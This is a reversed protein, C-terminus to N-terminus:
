TRTAHKPNWYDEGDGCVFAGNNDIGYTGRPNKVTNCFCGFLIYTSDISSTGLSEITRGM